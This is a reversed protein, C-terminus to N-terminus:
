QKAPKVERRLEQRVVDLFVTEDSFSVPVDPKASIPKSARTDFTFVKGNQLEYGKILSLDNSKNVRQAFFVYRRGVCPKGLGEITVEDRVIRGSKLRLAGGVRDVILMSDASLLKRSDSKLVDEVQVTIETYIRSRDESLYPQLRVVTGIVVAASESSPVLPLGRPLVLESFYEADPNRATLDNGGRNYRISKAKRSEREKANPSEPEEDSVIAQNEPTSSQSPQSMSCERLDGQAQADAIYAALLLVLILTTTRKRRMVEVKQM